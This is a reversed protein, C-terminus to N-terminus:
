WYYILMNITVVNKQYMSQKEKNEDSFVSISIFNKKEIKHIDRIKVPFKIEKFALRKAFYKDSKTTRRPNHDAPNFYRVLMQFCENDDTNQINILRKRPNDLDKPLKIYSSGDLPNYKSIINTHGTVSDIIWGSGRGLSKRRNEMVTTFISQFVNDMDIENIIEESKSSSYFNDYNRKDKSEIKIFLSVLTAVFKFGKLETLLEILKCKIASQTDRLQLEPNFSNLTEVNYSSGNGKFAHARKTIKM